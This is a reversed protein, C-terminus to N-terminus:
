QREKNKIRLFNQFLKSLYQQCNMVDMSMVDEVPIEFCLVYKKAFVSFYYFNTIKTNTFNHGLCISTSYTVIVLNIEPKPIM